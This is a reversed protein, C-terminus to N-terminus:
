NALEAFFDAFADLALKRNGDADVLGTGILSSLYASPNELNDPDLHVWYYGKVFPLAYLARLTGNAWEYQAQQTFGDHWYYDAPIDYDDTKSSYGTEGMYIPVQLEDHYNVVIEQFRQIDIPAFTTGYQMQLAKFYMELGDAQMFSLLDLSSYAPPNEPDVPNMQYPVYAAASAYYGFPMDPAAARAGDFSAKALDTLEQMSMGNIVLGLEMVAYYTSVRDGFHSVVNYAIEYYLTKLEEFSLEQVWQPNNAVHTNIGLAIKFGLEEAADIQAELNSYDYIGPEPILFDHIVITYVSTFGADRAQEYGPVHSASTWSGFGEYNLDFDSRIGNEAIVENSVAIVIQEKLPMVLSLAEYSALARDSPSSAAEVQQMAQEVQELADQIGASPTYGELQRLLQQYESLVFDYPLEIVYSGNVDVTIGQGENDARMYVTGINEARWLATFYFPTDAPVDAVLYLDPPVDFVIHPLDDLHQEYVDSGVQVTAPPEGMRFFGQNNGMEWDSTEYNIYNEYADRLMAVGETDWARVLLKGERLDSTDPVLSLLNSLTGVLAPETGFEGGLAYVDGPSFGDGGSVNVAIVLGTGGPIPTLYGYDRYYWTSGSAETQNTTTPPSFLDPYSSEAFDSLRDFDELLPTQAQVTLNLSCLFGLTVLFRKMVIPEMNLWNYNIPTLTLM